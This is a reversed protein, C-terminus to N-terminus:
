DDVYSEKGSFDPVYGYLHLEFSLLELASYIYDNEEHYKDGSVFKHIGSDIEISSFALNKQLGREKMERRVKSAGDWKGVAAYINSFLVYNSDGGPYLEVQYKMVKEALEVDGQTRCAALLSGLVVENPMMPMKKIM